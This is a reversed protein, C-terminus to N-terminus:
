AIRKWVNIALYPPMNKDKGDVGTANITHTHAGASTTAKRETSASSSVPESKANGTATAERTFIDHTHAGTSNMTHTHSVVVANASGGTSGNAYTNGSALLFRDKIQEWTTGTFITSPNIANVTLYISGIPYIVDVIDNLAPIKGEVETIKDYVVKSSSATENTSHSDLTDSIPLNNTTIETVVLEVSKGSPIAENFHVIYNGDNEQISYESNSVHLGDVYADVFSGNIYENPLDFDFTAETTNHVIPYQSFFSSTGLTALWDQESGEFGNEVAVEYASLGQEGKIALYGKIVNETM